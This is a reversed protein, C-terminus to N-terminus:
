EPGAHADRRQWTRPFRGHPEFRCVLGTHVCDALQAGLWPEQAVIDDFVRSLSKRVAVRAREHSSTFQRSRNGLGASASIHELLTDLEERLREARVIDHHDEAEDIDSRLDNVRDRYARLAAADIVDHRTTTAIGGVLDAVPVDV